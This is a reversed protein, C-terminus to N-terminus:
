TQGGTSGTQKKMRQVVGSIFTKVADLGTVYAWYDPHRGHLAGSIRDIRDLQADLVSAWEATLGRSVALMQADRLTFRVENEKAKPDTRVERLLALRDTVADVREEAAALHARVAATHELALDPNSADLATRAARLDREAAEISRASDRENGALDASSAANFERLLASFAPALREARTRVADLRTTVSSLALRADNARSPAAAVAGELATVAARVRAAADRVARVQGSALASDLATVADDLTTSRSRVSPYDAYPAGNAVVTARASDAAAVAQAAISPITALTGAASDLHANHAGYFQDVARTAHELQAITRPFASEANQTNRSPLAADREFEESTALYAASADYCLQAVPEWAQRMRREPFLQESAQVATEVASQRNDMNLFAATMAALGTRDPERNPTRRFLRGPWRSTM